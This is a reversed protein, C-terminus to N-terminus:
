AGHETRSIVEAQLDQWLSVFPASYGAVRVMLDSHQDPHLQADLLMERSILNIQM